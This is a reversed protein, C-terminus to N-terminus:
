SGEVASECPIDVLRKFHLSNDFFGRRGKESIIMKRVDYEKFEELFAHIPFRGWFDAIVNKMVRDFCYPCLFMDVTNTDDLLLTIIRKKGYKKGVYKQAKEAEEPVKFEKRYRCCGCIYVLGVVKPM